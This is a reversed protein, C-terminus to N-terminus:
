KVLPKIRRRLSKARNVQSGGASVKGLLAYAKDYHKSSIERKALRVYLRDLEDLDAKSASGRARKQEFAAIAEGWKGQNILKQTDVAGIGLDQRPLFQQWFSKNPLDLKKERITYVALAGIILITAIYPFSIQLLAVLRVSLPARWASSRAKPAAQFSQRWEERQKVKEAQDKVHESFVKAVDESAAPQSVTSFVNSTITSLSLNAFSNHAGGGPESTEKLAQKLESAFEAMNRQRLNPDKALAKAVLKELRPSYGIESNVSALSPAPQTLHLSMLGQLNSSLFPARGTLAEFLTVGLSYIDSHHDVARGEFREPSMYTPSGCITGPKTLNTLTESNIEVIKAIGFDVVQVFRKDQGRETLVINEPKVDRHIVGQRHAEELADCVQRFIPEAEALGMFRREKILKTLTVGRLFDMVIYPQGGPIVGYDFVSVIHPHNLRSAAKAEQHFRKLADKDAVHFSHMVKVAVKRGIFEQTARYVVGMAGKGVVEEVRYRGELVQGILPDQGVLVLRTGDKPCLVEEDGFEANCRFCLKM